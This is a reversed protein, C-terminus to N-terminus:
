NRGAHRSHSSHVVVADPPAKDTELGCYRLDMPTFALGVSRAIVFRLAMECGGQHYTATRLEDRWDGLFTRVRENPKFVMSRSSIQLVTKKRFPWIHNTLRLKPRASVDGSFDIAPSLSGRVSSDVDLLIINSKPYLDMAQLVIEPKWHVVNRWTAEGKDRAILHYPNKTHALDKALNEALPRYNPTFFGVVVYSEATASDVDLIDESM